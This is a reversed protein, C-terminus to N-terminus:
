KKSSLAASDNVVLRVPRCLTHKPVPLWFVEGNKLQVGILGALVGEPTSLQCMGQYIYEEHAAIPSQKVMMGQNELVQEAGKGDIAIWNLFFPLLKTLIIKFQLIMIFYICLSLVVVSLAMYQTPVTLYRSTVTVKIKSMVDAAKMATWFFVRGIMIRNFLYVFFLAFGPNYILLSNEASWHARTPALQDLM